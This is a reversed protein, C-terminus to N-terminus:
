SALVKDLTASFEKLSAEDKTQSDPMETIAWGNYGVKDLEAM